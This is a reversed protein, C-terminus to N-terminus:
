MCVLNRGIRFPDHSFIQQFSKSHGTYSIAFYYDRLKREVHVCHTHSVGVLGLCVIYILSYMGIHNCFLLKYNICTYTHVHMTYTNHIYLQIYSTHIYTYTHIYTVKNHLYMYTPHILIYVHIM